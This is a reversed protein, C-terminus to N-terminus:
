PIRLGRFASFLAGGSAWSQTQPRRFRSVFFDAWMQRLMAVAGLKM